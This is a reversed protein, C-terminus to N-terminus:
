GEKSVELGMQVHPIQLCYGCKDEDKPTRSLACFPTLFTVQRGCIAEPDNPLKRYYNDRTFAHWENARGVRKAWGIIAVAM